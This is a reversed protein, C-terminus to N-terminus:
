TETARSRDRLEGAAARQAAEPDVDLVRAAAVVALLARGIDDATPMPSPVAVDLGLTRAKRV